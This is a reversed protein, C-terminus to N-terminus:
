QEVDIGLSRLLAAYTEAKQQAEIKLARETEALQEAKEAKQEAEEAKQEAEIKLAREKEAEREAKAKLDWLDPISRFPSGDPYYYNIEFNEQMFERQAKKAAPIKKNQAFAIKPEVAFTMQMRPSVLRENFPRLTLRGDANRLYGEVGEPVLDFDVDVIYFEEVGFRECFQRKEEMEKRDNSPSIVEFVVQPAINNEKWQKYTPRFKKEVGYVLFIDPAQVVQPAGARPYWFQDKGIWVSADNEYLRELNSAIQVIANWQKPNQAMPQGDTEPYFVAKRKSPARGPSYVRTGVPKYM